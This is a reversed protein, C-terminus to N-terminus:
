HPSLTNLLAAAAAFLVRYGQAIAKLGLAVWTPRAWAPPGLIVLSEGHEIFHTSALAM